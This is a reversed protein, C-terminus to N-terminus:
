LQIPGADLNRPRRKSRRPGMGDPLRFQETQLSVRLEELTFSEGIKNMVRHAFEGTLGLEVLKRAFLGKEYVPNPIQRPETLFGTPQSCRSASIPM